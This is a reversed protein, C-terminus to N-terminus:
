KNTQKQFRSEIVEIDEDNVCAVLAYFITMYQSLGYEAAEIEKLAKKGLLITIIKDVMDMESVNEKKLEQNMLLVNSKEDNVKYVVGNITITPRESSLKNSLDIHRPMIM